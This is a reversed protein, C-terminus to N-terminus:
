PISISNIKQINIRYKTIKILESIQKQFKKSSEKLNKKKKKSYVIMNNAILSSQSEEKSLAKVIKGQRISSSLIQLLQQILSTLTSM